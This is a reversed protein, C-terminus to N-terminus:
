GSPGHSGRGDMGRKKNIRRGGPDVCLPVSKTSQELLEM